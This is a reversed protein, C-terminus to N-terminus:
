KTYKLWIEYTVAQDAAFTGPDYLKVCMSTAGTATGVLQSGVQAASNDIVATCALSDLVGISMGVPVSPDPGIGAMTLTINGVKANIVQYSV